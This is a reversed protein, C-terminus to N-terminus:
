FCPKEWVCIFLAPISKTARFLNVKGAQQFMPFEPTGFHVDHHFKTRLGAGSALARIEKLARRHHAVEYRQDGLKFSRTWGANLADPHLDSVAIVGGPKSTRAFERFVRSVDHFYGLSLSCLVLDATSTHFPLSEADALTIRGRLCSNKSAERLMEECGDCGFVDWAGQQFYSLSRGTGCAVDIVKGPRLPKLLSWMSRRELAVIPNLGSDYVPAWLRHGELASVRMVPKGSAAKELRRVAAGM